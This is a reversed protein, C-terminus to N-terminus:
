SPVPAGLARQFVVLTLSLRDPILINPINYAQDQILFVCAILPIFLYLTGFYDLVFSLREVNFITTSFTFGEFWYCSARPNHKITRRCEWMIRVLKQDVGPHCAGTDWICHQTAWTRRWACVGPDLWIKQPWLHSKGSSGHPKQTQKVLTM